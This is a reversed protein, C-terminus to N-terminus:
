PEVETISVVFYGITKFQENLLSAQRTAEERSDYMDSDELKWDHWDASGTSSYAIAYTKM